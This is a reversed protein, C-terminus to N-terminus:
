KLAAKNFTIAPQSADITCSVGLPLTIFPSTHGSGLGAIVPGKFDSLLDSIVSWLQEPKENEVLGMSGFVIGKVGDLLGSNKLHTLMRDYKYIRENVDEIFLISGNTKLEYSTGISSSIISLCGGALNGTAKGKKLVRLKKSKVPKLPKSSTLASYLSSVTVENEDALAALAPGYFCSVGLKSSVYSTLATLDSYGVILKPNKRFGSFDIHPIIRQVGYGGRAFMVADVEPDSFMSSLEEARAEDDGALYGFKRETIDNSYKVKFGLSRLVEVGRRFKEKSFTSSAAAVGITAGNKLAKPRTVNSM